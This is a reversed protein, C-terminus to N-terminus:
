RVAKGWRSKPLGPNKRLWKELSELIPRARKRREECRLCLCLDREIAYLRQLQRLVYNAEEPDSDLCEHFYRWAHARCAYTVMLPYRDFIEYGSFGDTQIAGIFDALMAEPGARCRTKTYEMFMLGPEKALYTWLYGRVRGAQPGAGTPPSMWRCIIARRCGSGSHRM